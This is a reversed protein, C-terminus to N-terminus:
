IEWWPRWRRWSPRAAVRTGMWIIVHAQGPWVMLARYRREIEAMDALETFLARAEARDSRTLYM